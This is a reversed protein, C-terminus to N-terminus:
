HTGDGATLSPEGQRTPLSTVACASPGPPTARSVDPRRQRAWIVGDDPCHVDWFGFWPGGTLVLRVNGSCSFSVSVVGTPWIATVTVCRVPISLGSLPM